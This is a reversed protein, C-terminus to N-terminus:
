FLIIQFVNELKKEIYICVNNKSKKKKKLIPSRNGKSKSKESIWVDPVNKDHFYVYILKM